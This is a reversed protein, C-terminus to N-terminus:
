KKTLVNLEIDGIIAAIESYSSYYSGLIKSTKSLAWMDAAGNIMGSHTTRSANRDGCIIRKGYRQTLSEIVDPADSALFFNVNENDNICNDMKQIFLDLPSNRISMINDTRRIHVGVTHSNFHETKACILREVEYSPKFLQKLVNPSFGGVSIGSTILINGSLSKIENIFDSDKGHFKTLGFSDSYVGQYAIRQFIGSLYLNRKRPIEWKINYEIAGPERLLIDKPLPQFLDSFDAKVDDNNRWIIKLNRDTLSSLNVGTAISRMRNALGGIANVVLTKKDM